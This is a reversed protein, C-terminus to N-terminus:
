QIAVHGLSLWGCEDIHISLFLFIRLYYLKLKNFVGAQSEVTAHVLLNGEKYLNVKTSRWRTYSFSNHNIPLILVKIM